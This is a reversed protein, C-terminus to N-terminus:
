TRVCWTRTDALFQDTAIGFAQAVRQAAQLRGAELELAIVIEPHRQQAITLGDVLVRQGLRLVGVRSVSSAPISASATV